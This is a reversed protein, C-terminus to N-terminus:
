NIAWAFCNYEQTQPSTIQYNTKSLNRWKLELYDERNM